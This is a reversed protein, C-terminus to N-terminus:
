IPLSKLTGSGKLTHGMLNMYLHGHKNFHNTVSAESSSHSNGEFTRQNSPSLSEISLYSSCPPKRPEPWLLM